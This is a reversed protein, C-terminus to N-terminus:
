AEIEYTFQAIKDGSATTIRKRDVVKSVIGIGGPLRTDEVRHGIGWILDGVAWDKTIFFSDVGGWKFCVTDNTM